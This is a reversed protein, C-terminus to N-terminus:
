CHHKEVHALLAYKAADKRQSAAHLVLELRDFEPEGRLVFEMQEAQARTIEKVADIFQGLLQQKQACFAIEPISEATKGSM